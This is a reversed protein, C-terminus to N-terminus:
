SRSIGKFGPAKIMELKKQGQRMLHEIRGFEKRSIHINTEFGSRVAAMISEKGEPSKTGAARSFDRYLKLVSKQLGSLRGTRRRDTAPFPSEKQKEARDRVRKLQAVEAERWNAPTADGTECKSPMHPTQDAFPSTSKHAVNGEPPLAARSSARRLSLVTQNSRSLATHYPEADPTYAPDPQPLQQCNRTSLSRPDLSRRCSAPLTTARERHASNNVEGM